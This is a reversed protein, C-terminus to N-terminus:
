ERLAMGAYMQRPIFEEFLNGALHVPCCLSDAHTVGEKQPARSLFPIFKYPVGFCILERQTMRRKIWAGEHSLPRTPTLPSAAPFLGPACVKLVKFAPATCGVKLPPSLSASPIFDRMFLTSDPAM